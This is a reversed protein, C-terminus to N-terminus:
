QMQFHARSRPLGKMLWFLAANYVVAKPFMRDTSGDQISKYSGKWMNINVRLLIKSKSHLFTTEGTM